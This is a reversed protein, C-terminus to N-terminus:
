QLQRWSIRPKGPDPPCVQALLSQLSTDSQAATMLMNCDWKKNVTGGSSRSM